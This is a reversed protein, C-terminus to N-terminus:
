CIRPLPRRWETRRPWSLNRPEAGALTSVRLMIRNIHQAGHRGAHELIADLADRMVGVEHM